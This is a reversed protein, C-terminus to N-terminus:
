LIERVKVVDSFPIKQDGILQYTEAGKGAILICDGAKAYQIVDQIAKSRDHQVIAKKPHSFGRLIDAVIETPDEHRPNDDTVIIYDSNQEAIQAMLPRKGKDRDGGCGFVCFLQGRCHRRLAKLAKELSDPTHSYDVVVLPKDNGGLTEMRGPVPKVKALSALVQEFPIDLLCLTTLV